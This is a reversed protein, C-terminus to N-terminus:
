KNELAMLREEIKSYRAAQGAAIFHALENDRFSYCEGAPKEPEVLAGDDDYAPPEAEWQDFCIFGYSFPNLGHSEMVEIARQVTMGVHDRAADGKAEIADLFKYVGIEGALACAAAIEADNLARVATKHTADSTNITGTGAYVVSWRRSSTGSSIANDTGPEVSTPTARFYLAGAGGSYGGFSLYELLGRAWMWSSGRNSGTSVCGFGIGAPASISNNGIWNDGRGDGQAPDYMGRLNFRPAGAPFAEIRVTADNNVAVGTAHQIYALNSVVQDSGIIGILAAAQSWAGSAFSTGAFDTLVQATVQTTSNSANEVIIARGAGATIIAGVSTQGDVSYSRFDTSTSTITITGSAASLTINGAAPLTPKSQINDTISSGRLNGNGDSNCIIAAGCISDSFFNGQITQDRIATGLIPDELYNGIIMAFQSSSQISHKNRYLHNGVVRTRGAANVGVLNGVVMSSFIACDTNGFYVGCDPALAFDGAQTGYPFAEIHSRSVVVNYAMNSTTIGRLKYRTIHCGNIFTGQSKQVEICWDANRAGDFEVNDIYVSQTWDNTNSSSARLIPTGAAFGSLAVLGGNCIRFAGGAGGSGGGSPLSVTSGIGYTMGGLNVSRMSASIANNFVAGGPSYGWAENIAAQIAPQWDWTRPDSPNPRSTILAEYEWPSIDSADLAQQVNQIEAILPDRAWGMHAGGHDQALEQRLAADGVSVFKPEDIEWDNVTTYPLTLAAGARWFEGDKSFIQNVQTVTLPGDTDYDGIFQYGSALLFDNFDSERQAQAADFDAQHEAQEADFADQRDSQAQQFAVEMGNWTLRQVGLRDRWQTITQDNVWRDLIAANDVLDRPDVSGWAGIPNGTNFPTYAM